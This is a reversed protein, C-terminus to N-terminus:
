AISGGEIYLTGAGIGYVAIHTFSGVKVIIQDYGVTARADSTAAVANVDGQRYAFPGFGEWTLRFATGTPLAVRNTGVGAIITLSATNPVDSTYGPTFVQAVYTRVQWAGAVPIYDVPEGAVLVRATVSTGIFTLPIAQLAALTDFTGLFGTWYTTKFQATCGFVDTPCAYAGATITGAGFLELATGTVEVREDIGSTATRYKYM